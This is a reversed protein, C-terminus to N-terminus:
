VSMSAQRSSTSTVGWPPAEQSLTSSSCPVVWVPLLAETGLVTCAFVKPSISTSSSSSTLTYIAPCPSQVRGLRSCWGHVAGTCLWCRVQCSSPGASSMLSGLNGGFGEGGRCSLNPPFGSSVLSPRPGPHEWPGQQASWGGGVAVRSGPGDQPGGRGWSWAVGM